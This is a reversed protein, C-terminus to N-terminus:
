SCLVYKRTEESRLFRGNQFFINCSWKLLIHNYYILNVAVGSRPAATLYAAYHETKLAHDNIKKLSNRKRLRAM